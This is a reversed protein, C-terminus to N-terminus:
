NRLKKTESRLVTWIIYEQFCYHNTIPSTFVATIPSAINWKQQGSSFKKGPGYIFYWDRSSTLSRVVSDWTSLIGPPPYEWCWGVGGGTVSVMNSYFNNARLTWLLKVSFTLKSVLLCVIFLKLSLVFYPLMVLYHEKLISNWFFDRLAKADRNFECKAMLTRKYIQPM